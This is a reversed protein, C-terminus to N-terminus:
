NLLEPEAHFNGIIEIGEDSFQTLPIFYIEKGKEQLGGYCCANEDYILRYIEECESEGGGDFYFFHGKFIDNCFLENDNKDKEEIFLDRGIIDYNEVDFLRSLSYQEIQSIFYKKYHLYGTHKNKLTYRIKIKNM